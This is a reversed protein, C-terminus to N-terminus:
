RASTSIAEQWINEYIFDYVDGSVYDEFVFDNNTAPQHSHAYIGNSRLNKHQMALLELIGYVDKHASM